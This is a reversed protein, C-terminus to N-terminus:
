RENREMLEQKLYVALDLIEEYADQLAKRGNNTKLETGYRNIGLQRRAEIDKILEPFVKDGDGTPLPQSDEQREREINM